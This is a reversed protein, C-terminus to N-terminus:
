GRRGMHTRVHRGDLRPGGAAVVVLITSPEDTVVCNRLPEIGARIVRGRRDQFPESQGFIRAYKRLKGYRRAKPLPSFSTHLTSNSTQFFAQHENRRLEQRDAILSFERGSRPKTCSPTYDPPHPTQLPTNCAPNALQLLYVASASGNSVGDSRRCTQSETKAVDCARARCVEHPKRCTM